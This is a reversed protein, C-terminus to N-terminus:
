GGAARPLLEDPVLEGAGGEADDGDEEDQEGTDAYLRAAAEREVQVQRMRAYVESPALLTPVESLRLKVPFFRGHEANPPLTLTPDGQEAAHARLGALVIVGALIRSTIAPLDEIRLQQQRLVDVYAGMEAAAAECMRVTLVAARVQQEVAKEQEELRRARRQLAATGERLAAVEEQLGDRTAETADCAGQLQEAWQLLGGVRELVSAAQVPEMRAVKLAHGWALVDARTAGSEVLENLLEVGASSIGAARQIDTRLVSLRSEAEEVQSRALAAAQEAEQQRHRAEDLRMHQEVIQDYADCYFEVAEGQSEFERKALDRFRAAIEMRCDIQLTTRGAGAHPM